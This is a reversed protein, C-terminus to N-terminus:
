QHPQPVTDESLRHLARAALTDDARVAIDDLSLIGVPVDQEDVVVLRRVHHTEMADVAEQITDYEHITHVDMVMIDETTATSPDMGEAIALTALDRDTVLGMIEAGNSVVLTGVNEDRMKRAAEKLSFSPRIMKVSPTMVEKVDM